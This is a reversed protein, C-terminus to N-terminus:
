GQSNEEAQKSSEEIIDGSATVLQDVELTGFVECVEDSGLDPDGDEATDSGNEVHDVAEHGEPKEDDAEMKDAITAVRVKSRLKNILGVLLSKGRVWKNAVVSQNEEM